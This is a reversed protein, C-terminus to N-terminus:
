NQFLGFPHSNGLLIKMTLRPEFSDVFPVGGTLLAYLMVGLAWIDQAPHPCYPNEPDPTRLLEPAAYPLSGPPFEYVAQPQSTQDHSQTSVPTSERRRTSSNHRLLSPLAPIGLDGPGRPLASQRRRPKFSDAHTSAWTRSSDIHLGPWSTSPDDEIEEGIHRTMGFDGIRCVGMEDVLVNELKLDIHVLGMQEHLYRVGGVVQRFMTGADDLPLAPRGDRKLIDYLTGAPCLLMFFFDAYSTQVLHFLPLIHEHSLMKWITAENELRDHAQSPDTQSDLDSRRVIKVAVSGGSPSFARRITSFGGYGIISGLKYGDVVEGEDDPLPAVSVSPSFASLFMAAPSM